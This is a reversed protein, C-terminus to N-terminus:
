SYSKIELINGGQKSDNKRLAHLIWPCQIIASSMLPLNAKTMPDLLRWFLEVDDADIQAPWHMSALAAAMAATYGEIDLERILNVCLPYNRLNFARFRSSQELRRRRGRYCRVLCDQNERSQQILRGQAANIRSRMPPFLGAFSTARRSNGHCSARPRIKKAVYTNLEISRGTRCDERELM